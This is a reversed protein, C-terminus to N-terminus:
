AIGGRLFDRFVGACFRCTTSGRTGNGTANKAAQGAQQHADTCQCNGADTGNDGPAYERARESKSAPRGHSIPAIIASYPYPPVIRRRRM